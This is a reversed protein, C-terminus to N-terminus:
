EKKEELFPGEGGSGIEIRKSSPLQAVKKPLLLKLVGNSYEAKIKDTDINSVDFSRQFAGFRRERRIYSGGSDKEETVDDKKASILLTDGQLDLHIDEKGFGPLEAELLYADDKERIDTRFTSGESMTGLASDFFNREFEDFMQFISGPRNFLSLNSM